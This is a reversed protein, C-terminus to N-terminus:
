LDFWWLTGVDLVWWDPKNSLDKLGIMDFVSLGNAPPAFAAMYIIAKVGGVLAREKREMITEGVVGETAPIGGYSHCLVVIEAGTDLHPVMANKIVNADDAVSMSTTSKDYGTTALCPAVVTYGMDRLPQIIHIYHLPRHWAGHIILVVPKEPSPM